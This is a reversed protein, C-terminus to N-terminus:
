DIRNLSKRVRELLEPNAAVRDAFDKAKIADSIEKNDEDLKMEMKGQEKLEHDGWLKEFFSSLGILKVFLSLLNLM